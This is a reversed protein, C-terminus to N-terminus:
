TRTSRRRTWGRSSPRRPGARAGRRGTAPDNPGVEDRRRAAEDASLGADPDVGFEEAVADRAQAWWSSETDSPPVDTVNETTSPM